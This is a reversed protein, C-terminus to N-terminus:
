REGPNEAGGSGKGGVHDTGGPPCRCRDPESAPPWRCGRNGEGATLVQLNVPAHGSQSLRIRVHAGLHGLRTAGTLLEAIQDELGAPLDQQGLTEAGAGFVERELPHEGMHGVVRPIPDGVGRHDAPDPLVLLLELEVDDARDGVDLAVLLNPQWSSTNSSATAMTSTLVGSSRRAESPSSIRTLQASYM